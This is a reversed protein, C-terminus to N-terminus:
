NLQNGMAWCMISVNFNECKENAEAMKVEETERRRGSERSIQMSFEFLNTSVLRQQKQASCVNHETLLACLKFENINASGNGKSEGRGIGKGNDYQQQREIENLHFYGLLFFPLLFFAPFFNENQKQLEESHNLNRTTTAGLQHRAKSVSFDDNESAEM